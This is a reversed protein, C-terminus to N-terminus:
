AEHTVDFRQISRGRLAVTVNQLRGDSARPVLAHVAVHVAALAEAYALQGLRQFIQALGPAPGPV